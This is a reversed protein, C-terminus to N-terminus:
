LDAEHWSEAPPLMLPVHGVGLQAIRQQHVHWCSCRMMRSVGDVTVSTWGDASCSECHEFPQAALLAKRSEEAYQRLEGPKPFFQTSGKLARSVAAELLQAPVDELARFYATWGPIDMDMRFASVLPQVIAIFEPRTM